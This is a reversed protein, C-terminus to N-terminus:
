EGAAITVFTRGLYLRYQHTASDEVIQLPVPRKMAEDHLTPAHLLTAGGIDMVVAQDGTVFGFGYAGPGLHQGGFLVPQEVILYAQYMEQVTSAYGSTDVLTALFLKGGPFKIGASNRAQIPATQGRFFVTAPLAAGAQERHM